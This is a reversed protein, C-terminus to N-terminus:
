SIFRLYISFVSVNEIWIKLNGLKPFDESKQMMIEFIFHMFEIKMKNKKQLLIRSVFLMNGCCGIEWCFLFLILVWFKGGFFIDAFNNM